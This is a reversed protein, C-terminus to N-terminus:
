GTRSYHIQLEFIYGKNLIHKRVTHLDIIYDNLTLYEYLKFFETINKIPSECNDLSNFRDISNTSSESKFTNVTDSDNEMIVDLDNLNSETHHFALNFLNKSNIWKKGNDIM